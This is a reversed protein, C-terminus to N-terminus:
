VAFIPIKGKLELLVGSVAYTSLSGTDESDMKREYQGAGIRRM